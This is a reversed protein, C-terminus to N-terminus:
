ENNTNNFYEYKRLAIEINDDLHKKLHKSAEVTILAGTYLLARGMEGKLTVLYIWIRPGIKVIEFKKAPLGYKDIIYRKLDSTRNMM